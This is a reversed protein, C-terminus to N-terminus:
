LMYGTPHNERLCSGYDDNNSPDDLLVGMVSNANSAYVTM